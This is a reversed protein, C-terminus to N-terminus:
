LQTTQAFQRRAFLGLPLHKTVELANGAGGVIAVRRRSADGGGANGAPRHCHASTKVVVVTKIRMGPLGRPRRGCLPVTLEVHPNGVQWHAARVQTNASNAIGM